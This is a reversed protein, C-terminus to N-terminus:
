RHGEKRKENERRIKEDLKMLSSDILAYFDYSEDKVNVSVGWDFHVFIRIEYLGKEGDENSDRTLTLHSDTIHGNLFSFKELKKNILERQAETIEFHSTRIEIKM